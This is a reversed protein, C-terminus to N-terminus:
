VLLLPITASASMIIWGPAVLLFGDRPKLERAHRRTAVALLLGAGSSLLAALVFSAATGDGMLFSTIIPLVYAAGFVALMLGLVHAVRLVSADTRAPRASSCASSRRSM